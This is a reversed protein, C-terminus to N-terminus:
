PTLDPNPKKLICPQMYSAVSCCLAPIHNQSVVANLAHGYPKIISRQLTSCNMLAHHHECPMNQKLQALLLQGLHADTWCFTAFKQCSLCRYQNQAALVAWLMISISSAMIVLPRGPDGHECAVEWVTLNRAELQIGRFNRSTYAQYILYQGRLAKM